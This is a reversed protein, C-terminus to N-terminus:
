LDITAGVLDSHELDSTCATDKLDSVTDAGDTGVAVDSSALTSSPMMAAMLTYEAELTVERLQAELEHVRESEKKSMSLLTEELQELQAVLNKNLSRLHETEEIKSRKLPYDWTQVRFVAFRNPHAYSVSCLASCPFGAKGVKAKASIIPNEEAPTATEAVKTNLSHRPSPERAGPTEPRAVKANSAKKTPSAERTNSPKKPNATEDLGPPKGPGADKKMGVVQQGLSVLSSWIMYASPHPFSGVEADFEAVLAKVGPSAVGEKAAAKDAEKLAHLNKMPAEKKPRFAAGLVNVNRGVEVGDETEDKTLPVQLGVRRLKRPAKPLLLASPVVLLQSLLVKYFEAVDQVTLLHPAAARKANKKTQAPAKSRYAGGLVNVPADDVAVVEREQTGLSSLVSAFLAPTPPPCMVKATPVPAVPRQQKAVPAKREAPPPPRASTRKSTGLHNVMPGHEGGLYLIRRKQGGKNEDRNQTLKQCVAVLGHAVGGCALAAGAVLAMFDRDQWPFAPM